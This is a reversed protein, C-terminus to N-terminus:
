KASPDLRITRCSRVTIKINRAKVNLNQLRRLATILTPWDKVTSPATLPHRDRHLLLMQTTLTGDANPTVELIRGDTLNM